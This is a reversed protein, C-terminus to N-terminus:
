ELCRGPDCTIAVFRQSYWRARCETCGDRGHPGWFGYSCFASLQYGIPEVAIMEGHRRMRMAALEDGEFAEVAAAFARLDLLECLLQSGLAHGNHDGAFGAAGGRSFPNAM